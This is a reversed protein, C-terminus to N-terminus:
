ARYLFSFPSPLAVECITPRIVFMLEDIFKLLIVGITFDQKVRFKM